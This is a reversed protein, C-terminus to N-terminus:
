QLQGIMQLYTTNGDKKLVKFKSGRQGIWELEKDLFEKSIGDWLNADKPNSGYYFKWADTYHSFPEAYFGQAGKPVVIVLNHQTGLFGKNRHVSTSLFGKDTFEDGIKLQSFKYGFEEINYDDVGRRVVTNQPMKFKSIAKTLIPLDHKHADNPIKSGYYPLGRLPENLYNFTQTYKTLVNREELTLTKWISEALPRLRDDASEVTESNFVKLLKEIEKDTIDPLTNKAVKNRRALLADIEEKVKDVYDKSVVKDSLLASLKSNSKPNLSKANSILIDVENQLAKYEVKALQKEYASQAVKWTNYKKNKKVWEVEYKLKELQEELPLNEFTKLKATIADYVNQTSTVGYKKIVNLADPIKESLSSALVKRSQLEAALKKQAAAIAATKGGKSLYAELASADIDAYQEAETVLNKREQIAKARSEWAAKVKAAQEPTRAPKVKGTQFALGGSVKGDRYNDKLFYPLTGRKEADAIRDGNAAIWARFGEPVDKVENVSGTGPARGELIAENERMLEDPTKLITVAHCRCQPHWGTFKFNKPYKGKLDDCIDTFPVGNITHNNSLRIEIGVVFDLQQWREYDAAHYAMNNETRALRMANKYSSRYVGAGPHFTKAEKSLHLRGREDRVRRFLKDPYQLYQKLERAMKAAPLGSRIGLDLGMEIEAKLQSTYKWVRDSLNLGATKRKLFAELANENNSYYRREQEKTLKYKNDGFVLDCLANNKNGALTWESRVGDVVTAEIRKKLGNLVSEIKKKTNPYDAFSFPKKPNFDRVSAGITAAEKAATDFIATIQRETIGLNLLHQKDYKNLNAM